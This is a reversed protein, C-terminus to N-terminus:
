HLWIYNWVKFLESFEILFDFVLEVSCNLRFFKDHIAIIPYAVAIISPLSSSFVDGCSVHDNVIWLSCCTNRRREPERKKEKLKETKNMRRSETVSFNFVFSNSRPVKLLKENSQMWLRINDDRKIQEVFSFFIVM